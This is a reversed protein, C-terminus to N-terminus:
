AFAMLMLLLFCAMTLNWTEYVTLNNIDIKAVSLHNAGEVHYSVQLHVFNHANARLFGPVNQACYVFLGVWLANEDVAIDMFSRSGNFLYQFVFLAAIKLRSIKKGSNQLLLVFPM